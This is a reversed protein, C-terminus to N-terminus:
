ALPVAVLNLHALAARAATDGDRLWDVLEGM